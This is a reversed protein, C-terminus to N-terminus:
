NASYDLIKPPGGLYQKIEERINAHFENVQYAALAEKGTFTMQLVLNYDQIARADGTDEPVGVVLSQVEKIRELTQLLGEIEQRKEPPLEESLELLVIHTLMQGSQPNSIVAKERGLM